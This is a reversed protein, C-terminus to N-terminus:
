VMGTRRVIFGTIYASIQLSLIGLIMGFLGFVKPFLIVVLLVAATLFYRLIAHLHGYNKAQKEEPLDVAHGLSRELLVVKVASLLCGALLGLFYPLPQEFPYLLLIVGLGLFLLALFLGAIVACMIAATNSLKLLQKLFGMRLGM